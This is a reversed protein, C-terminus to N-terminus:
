QGAWRQGGGCALSHQQLKGDQAHQRPVHAGRPLEAVLWTVQFGNVEGGGSGQHLCARDWSTNNPTTQGGLAQM